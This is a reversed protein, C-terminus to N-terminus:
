GPDMKIVGRQRKVSIVRQKLSEFLPKANPLGHMVLRPMTEDHSIM